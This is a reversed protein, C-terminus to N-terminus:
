DGKILWALIFGSWFMVTVAIINLNIICDINM